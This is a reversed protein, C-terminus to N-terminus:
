IRPGVTASVDRLPTNMPTAMTEIPPTRIRDREIPTTQAIAPSSPPQESATFKGASPPSAFARSACSMDAGSAAPSVATSTAGDHGAPWVRHPDAHTVSELSAIFQPVHPLAQAAPGFPVAAHTAADHVSVHAAPNPSQSPIAAFPQSVLTVASTRLQPRQRLEHEGCGLADGVHAIPAHPKIHVSPRPFQSPLTIFPQSVGNSELAICQPRQPLAHATPEIQEFPAHAITEVEHRASWAAAGISGLPVYM